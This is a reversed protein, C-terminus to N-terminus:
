FMQYSNFKFDGSCLLIIDSRTTLPNKENKDKQRSMNLIVQAWSSNCLCLPYLPYCLKTKITDSMKFILPKPIHSIFLLFNKKKKRKLTGWQM